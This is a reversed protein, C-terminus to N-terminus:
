RLLTLIRADYISSPLKWCFLFNGNELLNKWWWAELVLSKLTWFELFIEAYNCRIWMMAVTISTIHSILLAVSGWVFDRAMDGYQSCLLNQLHRHLTQFSPRLHDDRGWCPMLLQNYVAVNCYQPKELYVQLHMKLEHSIHWILENSAEGHM